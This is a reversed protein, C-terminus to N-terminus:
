LITIRIIKECETNVLQRPHSIILIRVLLECITLLDLPILDLPHNVSVVSSFAMPSSHSCGFPLVLWLG